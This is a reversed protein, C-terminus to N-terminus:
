WGATFSIMLQIAGESEKKFAIQTAGSPAAHGDKFDDALKQVESDFAYGLGIRIGGFERRHSYSIGIAFNDIINDSNVMVGAYPGLSKESGKKYTTGGDTTIVETDLYIPFYSQLGLGTQVRQSDTVRVIGDRIEATTIIETNYYNVLFGASFYKWIESSDQVQSKKDDPIEEIAKIELASFLDASLRLGIIILFCTRLKM